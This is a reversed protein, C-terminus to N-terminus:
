LLRHLGVRGVLVLLIARDGEECIVWGVGM